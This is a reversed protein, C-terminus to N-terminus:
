SLLYDNVRKLTTRSPNAQPYSSIIWQLRTQLVGKSECLDVQRNEQPNFTGDERFFKALAALGVGVSIDTGKDCAICVQRGDLLHTKIFPISCPLVTHLFHHQGKKGEPTEICLTLAPDRAGTGVSLYTSGSTLYVMAIPSNSISLLSATCCISLLGSVHDIPTPQFTRQSNSDDHINTSSSAEVLSKVLEPLESRGAKLIGTRNNWFITPTLGMSWLEHDDASGQIYAFGTARRELGDTIQKSASVCIIPLFSRRVLFAPFTTTAPTIWMPRLPYKLNPLQYFSAALDSAWADLKREIMDQEQASVVGPPTYLTVDWNDFAGQASRKLLARNVVSCWIPVTKSLADPMRKGARTSDVLVIGSHEAILSLLHLNPRRLNFSWNNTHGDTSKFYAKESSATAPDAYWAGCRMNPILPLDKYHRRVEDVFAADEAISRIRNYIDQSEKRLEALALATAQRSSMTSPPPTSWCRHVAIQM